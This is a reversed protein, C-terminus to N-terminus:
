LEPQAAEVTVAPQVEVGFGAFLAQRAVAQDPPGAVLRQYTKFAAAVRLHGEGEVAAFHVGNAQGLQGVFVGVRVEQLVRQVAQRQLGLLGVLDHDHDGDAHQHDQDQAVEATQLGETGKGRNQDSQSESFGLD